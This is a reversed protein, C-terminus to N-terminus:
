YRLRALAMSKELAHGPQASTHTCQRLPGMASAAVEVSFWGLRLMACHVGTEAGLVAAPTPADFPAAAPGVAAASGLVVAKPAYSRRVQWRGPTSGKETDYWASTLLKDLLCM